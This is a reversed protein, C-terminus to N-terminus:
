WDAYIKKMSEYDKDDYLIGISPKGNIIIRETKM